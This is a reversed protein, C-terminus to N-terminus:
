LRLQLVKLLGKEGSTARYTLQNPIINLSNNAMITIGMTNVKIKLPM